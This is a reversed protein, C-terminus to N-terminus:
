CILRGPALAGGALPQSQVWRRPKTPCLQPRGLPATRNRDAAPLPQASAALTAVAPFTLLALAGRQVTAVMPWQALRAEAVAEATALIAPAAMGTAWASRNQRATRPFLVIRQVPPPSSPCATEM